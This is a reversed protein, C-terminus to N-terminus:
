SIATLSSICFPGSVSVSDLACLGVRFQDGSFPTARCHSSSHDSSRAQVRSDTVSLFGLMAHNGAAGPEQPYSARRELVPCSLCYRPRSRHSPLKGTKGAATRTTNGRPVHRDSGDGWPMVGKRQWQVGGDLRADGVRIRWRGRKM